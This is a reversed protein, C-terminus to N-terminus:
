IFESTDLSHGLNNAITLQWVKHLSEEILVTTQLAYDILFGVLIPEICSSVTISLTIQQMTIQMFCLFMLPLLRIDIM